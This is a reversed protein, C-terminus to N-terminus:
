LRNEYVPSIDVIAATVKGGAEVIDCGFIPIPSEPDKKIFYKQIGKNSRSREIM